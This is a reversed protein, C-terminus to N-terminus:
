SRNYDQYLWCRSWHACVCNAACGPITGAGVKPDPFARRSKSWSVISWIARCVICHNSHPNYSFYLCASRQQCKSYCIDARYQEPIVRIMRFTMQPCSNSFSTPDTRFHFINPCLPHRAPYTTLAPTTIISTRGFATNCLVHLLFALFMFRDIITGM